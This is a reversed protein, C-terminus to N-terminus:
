QFPSSSAPGRFISFRSGLYRELGGEEDGRGAEGLTWRRHELEDAKATAHRIYELWEPSGYPVKQEISQGVGFGVDALQVGGIGIRKMWELDKTIGEQNIDGNTWHWFTRPAGSQPPNKFQQELTEATQQATTASIILLLMIGM